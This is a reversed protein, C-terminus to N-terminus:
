SVTIQSLMKKITELIINETFFCDEAIQYNQPLIILKYQEDFANGYIPSIPKKNNFIGELIVLLFFVVALYVDADSAGLRFELRREDNNKSFPIRILATRNNYGWSINIPACYKKNKFLNLNIDKDFRLYDETNPAFIIMINHTFELLSSISGLLYGSELKEKAEKAFLYNHHYDVLSFNIQLSSGCDNQNPQSSFNAQCNLSKALNITIEKIAVVDECLLELDFYPNTKIEVQGLGQEPEIGLIAINNQQIASKLKSIFELLLHNNIALGSQSNQLYFEIEIGIKPRLNLQSFKELVSKLLALKHQYITTLLAQNSSSSTKTGLNSITGIHKYITKLGNMFPAKLYLAM